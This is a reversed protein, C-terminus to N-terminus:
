DVVSLSSKDTYVEFNLDWDPRIKWRYMIIKMILQLLPRSDM